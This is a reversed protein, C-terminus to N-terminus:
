PRAEEFDHGQGESAHVEGLVEEHRAQWSGERLDVFSPRLDIFCNITAASFTRPGGFVINSLSGRVQVSSQYKTNTAPNRQPTMAKDTDCDLELWLQFLNLKGGGRASEEALLVPCRKPNDLLRTFEDWKKKHSSSSPAKPPPPLPALPPSAPHPNVVPTSTGGSACAAAASPPTVPGAIAALPAAVAAFSVKHAPARPPPAAAKAAVPAAVVAPVGLGFLDEFLPVPPVGLSSSASRLSRSGLHAEAKSLASKVSKSSSHDDEKEDDEEKESSSGASSSSSPSGNDESHQCRSSSM